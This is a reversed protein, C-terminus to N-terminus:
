SQTLVVSADTAPKIRYDQRVQGPLFLGAGHRVASFVRMGQRIRLGPREKEATAEGRALEARAAKPRNGVVEEVSPVWGGSVRCAGRDFDLRTVRESLRSVVV